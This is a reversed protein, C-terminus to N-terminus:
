GEIKGGVAEILEKAKGSIKDVKFNLKKELKGRALIKIPSKKLRLMRKELLTEANVTSGEPFDKLQDLNIVNYTTTKRPTFGRKPIRRYLPMQGGEFGPAVGGGARAKQGKHGKGATKGWGSGIGRGIRKRNKNSGAAPKLNALTKVTM